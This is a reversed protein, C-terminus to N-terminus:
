KKLVYSNPGVKEYDDLKIYELNVRVDHTLKDWETQWGAVDVHGNQTIGEHKVRKRDGSGDDHQQEQRVRKLKISYPSPRNVPEFTPTPPLKAKTDDIKVVATVKRSLVDTFTVVNSLNKVDEKNIIEFLNRFFIERPRNNKTLLREKITQADQGQFGYNPFRHNIAKDLGKLVKVKMAQPSILDLREPERVHIKYMVYAMRLFQDASLRAQKDANLRTVALTALAELYKVEKREAITSTAIVSWILGLQSGSPHPCKPDSKGLVSFIDRFVQSLFEDPEHQTRALLLSTDLYMCLFRALMKHHISSEMAVSFEIPLYRVM